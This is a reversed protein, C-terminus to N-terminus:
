KSPITIDYTWSESYDKTPDHNTNYSQDKYRCGLIKNEVEITIEEGEEVESWPITHTYTVQHGQRQQRRRYWEADIGDYVGGNSSARDWYDVIDSTATVAGGADTLNIVLSAASNGVFDAWDFGEYEKGIVGLGWEADDHYDTDIAAQKDLERVRLYQNGYHVSPVTKDADDDDPIFVPTAVCNTHYTFSVFEDGKQTDVYELRSTVEGRLDGRQGNMDTRFENWTHDAHEVYNPDGGGSGDYNDDSVARGSFAASTGFAALTKLVNRRKSKIDRVM